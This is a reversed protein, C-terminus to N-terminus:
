YKVSCGYPRSTAVAIEKGSLLNTLAADVYNVKEEKSGRPDDDIGGAYVLKGEKDIIFMHPTTKADFMKGIKGDSDLLMSVFNARWNEYTKKLDEASEFDAHDPNTSNVTLWVVKDSYKKQVSPMIEKYVRQVFPCNPNTWELVVVKGRFQSLQYTKGDIGKLTFDPVEKGIEVEPSGAFATLLLLFLAGAATVLSTKKM